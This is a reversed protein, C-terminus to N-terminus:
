VKDKGPKPKTAVSADPSIRCDSLPLAPSFELWDGPRTRTSDITGAALEVVSHASLCASLRWPPVGSRVKKVKRHRDLYVLDIPFKM